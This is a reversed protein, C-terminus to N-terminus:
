RGNVASKAQILPWLPGECGRQRSRGRCLALHVVFERTPFEQMFCRRAGGAQGNGRFQGRPLLAYVCTLRGAVAARPLRRIIADPQAPLIPGVRQLIPPDGVPPDLADLRRGVAVDVQERPPQAFFRATQLHANAQSADAAPPQGAPLARGAKADAHAPRQVVVAVAHNMAASDIRADGAVAPQKKALQALARRDIQGRFADFQPQLDLGRAGRACDRKRSMRDCVALQQALQRALRDRGFLQRAVQGQHRIESEAAIGRVFLPRLFIGSVTAGFM